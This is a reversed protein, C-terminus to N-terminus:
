FYMINRQLSVLGIGAGMLGAGLIGINKTKNQPEGYHNKKLHTQGFHISILGQSEPTQSLRAFEESEKELGKEFGYTLGHSIVDLIARPAPYLGKTKKAVTKSAQGIM